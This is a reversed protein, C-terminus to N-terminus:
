TLPTPRSDQRSSPGKPEIRMLVKGTALHRQTVFYPGWSPGRKGERPKFGGLWLSGNIVFADRIDTLLSPRSWLTKGTEASLATVTRGSACIVSDDCVVRLPASSVSWQERGTRLNLCVVDKGKQYFVQEGIACLTVPRLGAVDTGVKKWLLRGTDANLALVAKEAKAEVSRFREFLPQATERAHLPSEKVKEFKALKELEAVREDTVSRVVLLVIGKHYVIEETGETEEYVKLTEGTAADM